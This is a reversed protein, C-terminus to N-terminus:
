FTRYLNSPLNFSAHFLFTLKRCFPNDFVVATKNNLFVILHQADDSLNMSTVRGENLTLVYNEIPQQLFPKM